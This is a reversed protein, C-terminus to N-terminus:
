FKLPSKIKYAFWRSHHTLTPMSKSRKAQWSPEIWVPILLFCTGDYSICAISTRLNQVSTAHWFTRSLCHLGLDSQKQLLLRILTKGTQLESLYKTYELGSLWCKIQSCFLFAKSIKSCNDVRKSYKFFDLLAHM